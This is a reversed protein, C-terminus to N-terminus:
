REEMVTIVRPCHGSQCLRAYTRKLDPHEGGPLFLRAGALSWATIVRGRKGHRVYYRQGVKIATARDSVIM